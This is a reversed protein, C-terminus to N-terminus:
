EPQQASPEPDTQQRDFHDKMKEQFKARMAEWQQKQTANLSAVFAEKAKMVATRAAAIDPQATTAADTKANATAPDTAVKRAAHMMKRLGFQATRMDVFLTRQDPTLSLKEAIRDAEAAIRQDMNKGHAPCTGDGSGAWVAVPVLFAAAFLAALALKAWSIKM